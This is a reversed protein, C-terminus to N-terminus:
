LIFHHGSSFFHVSSVKFSLSKKVDEVREEVEKRHKKDFESMSDAWKIKEQISALLDDSTGL